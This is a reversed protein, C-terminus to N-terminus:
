ELRTLLIWTGEVVWDLKLEKYLIKVIKSHLFMQQDLWINKNRNNISLFANDSWIISYDRWFTFLQRFNNLLGGFPNILQSLPLAVQLSLNVNESNMALLSNLGDASMHHGIFFIDTLYNHVWM